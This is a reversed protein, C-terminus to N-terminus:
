WCEFCSSIIDEAAGRRLLEMMKTKLFRSFETKMGQSVANSRIQPM